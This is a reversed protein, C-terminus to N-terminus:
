PKLPIVLHRKLIVIMLIMERLFQDLFYGNVGDFGADIANKATSLESLDGFVNCLNEQASIPDKHKTSWYGFNLMTGGTAIQMVPSLTNYLNIVDKENKRFTWLFVDFPNIPIM